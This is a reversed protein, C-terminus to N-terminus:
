KRQALKKFLDRETETLTKPIQVKVRVYLDGSRTKERLLPMGRGALRFAQGPQTGAPITLTVNGAPTPVVAQGGLIATYLDVSVDTYLDNEKREFRADPSVEIVLHIDAQM